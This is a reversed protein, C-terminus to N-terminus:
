SESDSGNFVDESSASSPPDRTPMSSHEFTSVYSMTSTSLSPQNDPKPIRPSQRSATRNGNGLRHADRQVFYWFVPTILLDCVPIGWYKLFVIVHADQDFASVIATGILILLMVLCEAMLAYTKSLFLAATSTNSEFQEVIFKSVRAMSMVAIFIVMAIWVRTTVEAVGNLTDIVHSQEPYGIMALAVICIAGTIISGFCICTLRIIRYPGTDTGFNVAKGVLGSWLVVTLIFVLSTMGAAIHNLTMFVVKGYMRGNVIGDALIGIAGLRTGISLFEIICIGLVYGPKKGNWLRKVQLWLERAFLAFCFVYVVYAFTLLGVNPVLGFVELISKNSATTNVTM